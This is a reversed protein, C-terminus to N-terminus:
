LKVAPVTDRFTWDTIECIFDVAVITPLCTCRSVTRWLLVTIGGSSTFTGVTPQVRVTRSPLHATIPVTRVVTSRCYCMIGSLSCGFGCVFGCGGFNWGGCPCSRSWGSHSCWGYSSGTGSIATSVRITRRSVLTHVSVTDLGTGLVRVTISPICHTFCV